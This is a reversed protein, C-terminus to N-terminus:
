TTAPLYKTRPRVAPATFPQDHSCQVDASHALGEAGDIYLLALRHMANYHKREIAKQFFQVITQINKDEDRKQLDRAHRYWGEAAPDLPPNLEKKCTFALSDWEIKDTSSM